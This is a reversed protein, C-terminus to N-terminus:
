FRGHIGTPGLAVTAGARRHAARLGLDFGLLWGGQLVLAAGAGALRAEDRARAVAWLTAGAAMYGADLGANIALVRPLRAAHAAAADPGAQARRRIGVAGAGAIGLNVVNWAANSAHFAMWADDQALLAGASGGALNAVAWGGLVAMGAAETRAPPGLPAARAAPAALLAGAVLAPACPLPRPM